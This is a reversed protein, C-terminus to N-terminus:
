FQIGIGVIPGYLTQTLRVPRSGVEGEVSLYLFTGGFVLSFHKAPQWEARISAAATTSDGAGLGGVDGHAILLWRRALRPRFSAGVVPEWIGPKWSLTPFTLITADIDLAIRRVGGQLYFAPAVKIGALLDAYIVDVDLEVLPREEEGALRAWLFGGDLAFWGREIRFASFFAGSLNGGTSGEPTTVGGGVCGSCPVQPLRAEAGYIPLWAYVPYVVGEWGPDTDEAPAATTQGSDAAPQAAALSSPRDEERSTARASTTGPDQAWAAVPDLLLALLTLAAADPGFRM